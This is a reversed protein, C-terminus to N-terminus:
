DEYLDSLIQKVLAQMDKAAERGAELVEEHNAKGKNLHDALESRSMAQIEPDNGWSGAELVASNTVLSFALVRMGAHRAVIIEPVTSMGVVDAGLMSLMRCEARTEYTPGGVFAYVGEHLKRKGQDLGLKAWAKHTRRRLDLDYADSLPPFRTGFDDLNPGRLPHVGVLGAINLHDNLCVIDGVSYTQNLGGAANTVVITEVGLLKCVRAAFTVVDMDHGEYFHARGVLLAVPTKHEGIQGFVFKSAHGLVTAQPFNPITAYSLEVKPEPEITDALGGLGSGCVIAVKPHQLAEPLQSRVYQATETARIYANPAAM